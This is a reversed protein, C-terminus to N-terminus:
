IPASRVREKALVGENELQNVQELTYDLINTLIEENNQGLLPASSIIEGPTLSLKVPFNTTKITGVKPHEINVFM